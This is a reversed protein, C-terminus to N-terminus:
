CRLTMTTAPPLLDQVDSGAADRPPPRSTAPLLDGHVGATSARLYDSCVSAGHHVHSLVDHNVVTM